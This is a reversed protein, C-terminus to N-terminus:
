ADRRWYPIGIEEEARIFWVSVPDGIRLAEVDGDTINGMILPGETLEIMAVIYPLEEKFPTMGYQRIITFTHVTGTGACERWHPAAACNTCLARPYWQRHGCEPCEQILLRGDAAARWYEASIRDPSPLPKLFKAVTRVEPQNM